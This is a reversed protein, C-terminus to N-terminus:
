GALQLPSAPCNDLQLLKNLMSRLHTVDGTTYAAISASHTTDEIIHLNQLQNQILLRQLHQAVAIGTDIITAAALGPRLRAYVSEISERVFPYHTCGLVLTDAGANAMVQLYAHLLQELETADMETQEILNVLGVCAQAVFRTQTEQILQDRLRQYKESQLTRQTALVGVVHNNSCAAAPKLGPEMGIIIQEPYAARLKQISAATATNCAVVLAKVGQAFLHQAILMCRATIEQESKEGYPVYAADSIYLLNEAPLLAHIHRLVSLGGIGSDFIGIPSGSDLIM